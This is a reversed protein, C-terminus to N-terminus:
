RGASGLLEDIQASSLELHYFLSYFEKVENEINYDFIEPYLINGLWKVGIVRNVSYPRSFWGFPNQPIGFVMSNKVASISRWNTRTFISKFSTRDDFNGEAPIIIVEPNWILLQEPSVNIRYANSDGSLNAVNEGGVLRILETHISGRPETQLGEPGEAFYVQVRNSSDVLNAKETIDSFTDLCYEALKAAQQQEGTIEGILQYAEDLFEFSSGDLFVVPIGLQQQLQNNADISSRDIKDMDVIIDPASKILTELNATCKKGYWGGLVPLGAWNEPVYKKENDTLKYNWGMLSDPTLTYILVTAVPNKCFITNVEAPIRVTRGAMDIIERYSGQADSASLGGAIVFVFMVAALLNNLKM